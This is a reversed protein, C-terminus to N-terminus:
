ALLIPILEESQSAGAVGELPVRLPWGEAVGEDGLEGGERGRVSWDLNEDRSAAAGADRLAEVVGPEPLNGVDVEGLDDDGVHEAAADAGAGLHPPPDHVHCIHLYGLGLVIMFDRLKHDTANKKQQDFTKAQFPPIKAQWDRVKRRITSKKKNTQYNSLLNAQERPTISQRQPARSNNIGKNSESNSSKFQIHLLNFFCLTTLAQM